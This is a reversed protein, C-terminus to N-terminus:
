RSEGDTMVEQVTSKADHVVRDAVERARETMEGASERARDFLEDRRGGMLQAERRTAPATFGIAMGLAVAAAGVALPSERLTDEFRDEVRHLDRRTTDMLGSAAHRARHAGDDLKEQARDMLHRAQDKGEGALDTVRDQAKHTLEESRDRITSGLDRASDMLGSSSDEYRLDDRPGQLTTRSYGYDRAVYGDDLNIGDYRSEYRDDRRSNRLLWGFGVGIMAAPIPNERISDMLSHRSEDVRSVANRAMTEAKGITADHLNQKLEGKLRDPNLREGLDEVTRSMRHRTREIDARIAAPDNMDNLGAAYRPRDGQMRYDTREEM